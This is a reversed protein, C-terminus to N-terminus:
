KVWKGNEKLLLEMDIQFVLWSLFYWKNRVNRPYRNFSGAALQLSDGL